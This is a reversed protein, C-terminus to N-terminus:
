SVTTVEFIVVSSINTKELLKACAQFIEEQGHHIEFEIFKTRGVHPKLCELFLKLEDTKMITSVTQIMIYILLMYFCSLKSSLLAGQSVSSSLVMHILQYFQKLNFNFHLHHFFCVKSEDRVEYECEDKEFANTFMIKWRLYDAREQFKFSMMAESVM